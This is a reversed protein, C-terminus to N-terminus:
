ACFLSDIVENLDPGDRSTCGLSPAVGGSVRNAGWGWAELLCGEQIGDGRGAQRVSQGLGAAGAAHLPTGTIFRRVQLVPLGPLPAATTVVELVAALKNLLEQSPAGALVQTGPHIEVVVEHTHLCAPCFPPVLAESPRYPRHNSPDWSAWRWLMRSPQSTGTCTPTSATVSETLPWM